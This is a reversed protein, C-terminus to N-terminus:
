FTIDAGLRISRPAQYVRPLHYNADPIFQEPTTATADRHDADGFEWRDHIAHSNLVNFVDVRRTIM